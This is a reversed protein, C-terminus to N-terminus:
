PFAQALEEMGIPGARKGTNGKQGRSGHVGDGGTKADRPGGQRTQLLNKLPAVCCGGQGRNAAVGEAYVTSGSENEGDPTEGVEDPVIGM